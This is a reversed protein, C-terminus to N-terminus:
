VVKLHVAATEEFGAQCRSSGSNAQRDTFSHKEIGSLRMTRMATLETVNLM